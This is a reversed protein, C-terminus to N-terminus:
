RDKRYIKRLSPVLGFPQDLTGLGPALNGVLMALLTGALDSSRESQRASEVVLTLLYLGLPTLMM